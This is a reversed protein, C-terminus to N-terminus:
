WYIDLGGAAVATIQAASCGLTRVGHTLLGGMAQDGVLKKVTAVKPSM